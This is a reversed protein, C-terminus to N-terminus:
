GAPTRHEAGRVMEVLEHIFMSLFVIFLAHVVAQGWDVPANLGRIAHTGLLLGSVGASVAATRERTSYVATAVPTLVFLLWISTWYGGLLYVLLVNVSLNVGMRVTSMRKTAEGTMRAMKATAFNFLGTFILLGVCLPGVYGKPQSLALGMGVMVLAFPTFYRNLLVVMRAQLAPSYTYTPKM